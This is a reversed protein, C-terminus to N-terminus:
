TAIGDHDLTRHDKRKGGTEDVPAPDIKDCINGPYKRLSTCFKKYIICRGYGRDLSARNIITADEIDYGSYSMVAIVANQGHPIKDFQILEITKTTLLPRQPYVLTYLVTDFRLNQNYSIFGMAQKGM